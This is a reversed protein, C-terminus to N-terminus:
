FCRSVASPSAFRTVFFGYVLGITRCSRTKSVMASAHPLNAVVCFLQPIFALVEQRQMAHHNVRVQLFCTTFQYRIDRAYGACNLKFHNPSTHDWSEPRTIKECYATAISGLQRSVRNDNEPLVLQEDYV